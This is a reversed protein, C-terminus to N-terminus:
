VCKKTTRDGRKVEAKRVLTISGERETTGRREDGRRSRTENAFRDTPEIKVNIRKKCTVKLSSNVWGGWKKRKRHGDRETSANKIAHDLTHRSPQTSDRRESKGSNQQRAATMGARKTKEEARM